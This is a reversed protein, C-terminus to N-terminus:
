ATMWTLPAWPECRVDPLSHSTSLIQVCRSPPGLLIEQHVQLSTHSFAPFKTWTSPTAMLQSPSLQPFALPIPHLSPSSLKLRPTTSLWPSVEPNSFSLLLLAHASMVNVRFSLPGLGAKRHGRSQLPPHQAALHSDSGGLLDHVGQLHGPVHMAEGTRGALCGNPIPGEIHLLPGGVALSTDPPVPLSAPSPSPAPRPLPSGLPGKRETHRWVILLHKACFASATVELDIGPVAEQLRQAEAPVICAEHARHTGRRRSLGRGWLGTNKM